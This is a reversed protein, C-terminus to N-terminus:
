LKRMDDNFLIKNQKNNKSMKLTKMIRAHVLNKIKGNFIIEIYSEIKLFKKDLLYLKVRIKFVEIIRM